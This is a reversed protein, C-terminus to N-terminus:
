TQRLTSCYELAPYLKWVDSDELFETSSASDCKNALYQDRLASTYCEVVDNPSCYYLKKDSPKVSYLCRSQNSQRGRDRKGISPKVDIKKWSWDARQGFKQKCCEKRQNGRSVSQWLRRDLVRPRVPKTLFGSADLDALVMRRLMSSSTRTMLNKHEKIRQTERWSNTRSLCNTISSHLFHQRRCFSVVAANYREEKRSVPDEDDCDTRRGSLWPSKLKAVTDRLEDCKWAWCFHKGKLLTLYIM